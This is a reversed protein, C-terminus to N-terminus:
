FEYISIERDLISRGEEEGPQCRDMREANRVEELLSKRSIAEELCGEQIDVGVEAPSLARGGHKWLM